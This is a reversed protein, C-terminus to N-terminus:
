SGSSLRRKGQGFLNSNNASYNVGSERNTNEVSPSTNGVMENGTLTKEIQSGHILPPCEISGNENGNNNKSMGNFHNMFSNYDTVTADDCFNNKNIGVSSSGNLLGNNNKNGNNINPHMELVPIGEGSESSVVSDVSAQKMQNQINEITENENENDNNNDNENETITTLRPIMSRHNFKRGGVVTALDTEVCDNSNSNSNSYSISMRHTNNSNMNMNMNTSINNISGIQDDQHNLSHSPIDPRVSGWHRTPGFGGLECKSKGTGNRNSAVPTTPAIIPANSSDISEVGDDNENPHINRNENCYKDDHKSKSCDNYSYSSGPNSVINSNSNNNNNMDGNSRKSNGDDICGDISNDDSSSEDMYDSNISEDNMWIKDIGREILERVPSREIQKLYFSHESKSKSRKEGGNENNDIEMEDDTPFNEISSFSENDFNDVNSGNDNDNDDVDSLHPSSFRNYRADTDNMMEEDNKNENDDGDGDGNKDNNNDTGDSMIRRKKRQPKINELTCWGDDDFQCEQWELVSTMTARAKQETMEAESEIMMESTGMTTWTKETTKNSNTENVMEDNDITSMLRKRGRKKRKMTKKVVSTENGNSHNLTQGTMVTAMDFMTTANEGNAISVNSNGNENANINNYDFMNITQTDFLQFGDNNFDNGNNANSIIVNM